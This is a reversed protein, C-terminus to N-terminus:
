GAKESEKPSFLVLVIYAVLDGVGASVRIAVGSKAARRFIVATQHQDHRLATVQDQRLTTVVVTM